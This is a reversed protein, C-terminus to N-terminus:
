TMEDSIKQQKFFDASYFGLIHFYIKSSRLLALLLM